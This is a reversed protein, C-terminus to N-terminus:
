ELAFREQGPIEAHPADGDANSRYGAPVGPTEWEFSGGEEHREHEEGSSRRTFRPSSQSRDVPEQTPEQEGLEQEMDLEVTEQQRATSFEGGGLEAFASAMPEESAGEDSEVAPPAPEPASAGTVFTGTEYTPAARPERRPVPDLAEREERAVEGPDAGRRRKLELHERIAEDLLGMRECVM